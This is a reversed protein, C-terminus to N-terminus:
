LICITKITELLSTTLDTALSAIQQVVPPTRIASLALPGTVRPLKGQLKCHLEVGLLHLNTVFTQYTLFIDAFQSPFM